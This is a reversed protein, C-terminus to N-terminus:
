PRDRGGVHPGCSANGIDPSGLLETALLWWDLRVLDSDPRYREFFVPVIAPGMVSRLHAAVYALDRHRDALAMADWRAFGVAEGGACVLVDLDPVGHTLVLDAEDLEGLRQVGSELVELLAPRTMHAYAADLPADPAAATVTAAEAVVDSMTVRAVHDADPLSDADLAHLTALREALMAVTRQPDFRYEMAGARDFRVSTADEPAAVGLSRLVELLRASPGSM